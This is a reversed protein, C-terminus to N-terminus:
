YKYLNETMLTMHWDGGNLNILIGKDDYIKLQLKEIDVPGHYERKYDSKDTFYTSGWTMKSSDFPYIGLVQNPSYVELRLNQLALNNRSQNQQARTYIQAKTLTRNQVNELYANVNDPTLYDLYPDQTYYSTPKVIEQDMKTQVMTDATQNKNFDDVVIVFYKTLPVSAIATGTLNGSTAITFSLTMTENASVLTTGTISRFGLYWGLNTNVKTGTPMFNIVCSDTNNNTITIKGTTSSPDSFSVNLDSLQSNISSLVGSLDYHGDPVTITTTVSDITVTFTSNYQRSEINYFTYPIQLNIIELSVANVIKDSLSISYNVETNTLNPRYQSDVLILRHITNKYDVNLTDRVTNKVVVGQTQQLGSSFKDHIVKECARDLFTQLKEPNSHTIYNKFYIKKKADELDQLTFESLFNINTNKTFLKKIDLVSYKDIDLEEM